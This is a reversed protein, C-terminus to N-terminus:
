KMEPSKWSKLQFDSVAKDRIELHECRPAAGWDFVAMVCHAIPFIGYSAATSETVFTSVPNRKSLRQEYHWGQVRLFDVPITIAAKRIPELGLSLRRSLQKLVFSAVDTPNWPGRQQGSRMRRLYHNLQSFSLITGSESYKERNEWVSRGAISRWDGTLAVISPFPAGAEDGYKQAGM